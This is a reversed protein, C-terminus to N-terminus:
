KSIYQKISYKFLSCELMFHFEDEPVHCIQCKRENVPISELGLRLLAKRFKVINVDCLYPQIRFDALLWNEELHETFLIIRNKLELM